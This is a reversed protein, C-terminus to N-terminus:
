SPADWLGCVPQGSGLDEGFGATGADSEALAAAFDGQISILAIGENQLCAEEQDSGPRNCIRGGEVTAELVDDSAVEVTFVGGALRTARDADWVVAAFEDHLTVVSDAWGFQVEAGTADQTSTSLWTSELCGNGSVHKFQLPEAEATAVSSDPLTVEVDFYVPSPAAELDEKECAFLALLIM